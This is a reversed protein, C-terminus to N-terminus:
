ILLIFLANATFCKFRPIHIKIRIFSIMNRCFTTKGLGTNVLELYLCICKMSPCKMSFYICLYSMEYISCKMSFSIWLYSMEYIPCKMSFSIWFCSMEYVSYVKWLCSMEYVTSKEYVPCNMSLLNKM